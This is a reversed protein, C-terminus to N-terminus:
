RDEPKGAFGEGWALRDEGVGEATHERAAALLDRAAGPGMGLSRLLAHAVMGTRHIGASCHVYVKGGGELAERMARLLALVEPRRSEPPIGASEMPFWIWRLGAEEAATGIDRAGESEALLTVIHTVGQQRLGRLSDRKPRHGLSLHGGRVRVAPITEMRQAARLAGSLSKILPGLIPGAPPDAKLAARLEELASSAREAGGEMGEQLTRLAEKAQRRARITDETM